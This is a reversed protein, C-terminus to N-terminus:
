RQGVNYSIEPLKDGDRPGMQRVLPCEGCRGESCYNRFIHILGQQHCATSGPSEDPCLQKTMHRTVGNDALRPYNAYLEMAKSMLEPKNFAKGWSYAFPLVVNVIIEGAKSNGLVTPIEKKSTADFDFHNRWYGEAAVTLGKELAQRGASQPADRVIQLIGTALKRESYRELIYSLAILRRVPSNNPYIRSFTWEAESMPEVNKAASRWIQELKQVEIGRAPRRRQRQSPLLGATGLLLAQKAALGPRSEISDLRIRDALDEFPRTNKAYGLARMIGRFLSQGASMESLSPRLMEGQFRMAKERFRQEGANNLLKELTQRDMHNFIQFCALRCPLLYPQHQLARTLCLVPIQRGSQVLTVSDCDHWVVVHLIVNNYAPNAHHEHGYWDSSKVHVEIDGRILRSQGAIVADRFDPGSDGSARGPYIIALAEDEISTVVKGVLQQWLLTAQEESVGIRNRTVM